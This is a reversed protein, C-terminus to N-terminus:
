AKITITGTSFIPSENVVNTFASNNPKRLDIHCTYDGDSGITMSISATDTLTYSGESQSGNVYGQVGRLVVNGTISGITEPLWRPTTLYLRIMKGNDTVYGNATKITFTTDTTMSTVGVSVDWDIMPRTGLKMIKNETNTPVLRIRSMTWNAGKLIFNDNTNSRMNPTYCNARVEGTFCLEGTFYVRILPSTGTLTLQNNGNNTCINLIGSYVYFNKCTYQGDIQITVSENIYIDWDDIINNSAPILVRTQERKHQRITLQNLSRIENANLAFCSVTDESLTINNSTLGFTGSLINPAYQPVSNNIPLEVVFGNRSHGDIFNTYMVAFLHGDKDFEMGELEGLQYLGTSDTLGLYFSDTISQEEADEDIFGHIINGYPSSIYFNNNWIALDQQYSRDGRIHEEPLPIISIFEFSQSDTNYKYLSYPTGGGIYLTGTAPDFSVSQPVIPTDIAEIFLLNADYKYLKKITIPSGSSFDWIPAIYIFENIYDYAASNAHGCVIQNDSYHYNGSISFRRAYGVGASQQQSATDNTPADFVIFDNDAKICSSPLYENSSIYDGMYVPLICGSNNKNVLRRLTYHLKVATISDDEVTTTAEPHEDLWEDVAEKIAEGYEADINSWRTTGDGNSFLVDNLNGDPNIIPKNLKNNIQNIVEPYQEKFDKIIQIIWDMNLDHFNSYPFNEGFAGGNM